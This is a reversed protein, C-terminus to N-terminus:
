SILTAKRQREIGKKRVKAQEWNSITVMSLFQFEDATRAGASRQNARSRHVATRRGAPPLDRVRVRVFDSDVGYTEIWEAILEGQQAVHM